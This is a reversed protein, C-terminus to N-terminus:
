NAKEAVVIAFPSPKLQIVDVLRLGASSFLDAFNQRTREKADLISLMHLDMHLTFIEGFEEIVQDFVLVKAHKPMAKAITLLIELCKADPWDHLIAKLTYCDGEPVSEFFSGGVFSIRDKVESVSPLQSAEATQVVHPLDFVIGKATPVIRLIQSTLLGHGGGVDVVTKFGSFDYVKSALAGADFLTSYATM